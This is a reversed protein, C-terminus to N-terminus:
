CVWHRPIFMKQPSFEERSPVRNVISDNYFHVATSPVKHVHTRHYTNNEPGLKQESVCSCSYIEVPMELAAELCIILYQDICISRGYDMGRIKVSLLGSPNRTYGGCGQPDKHGEVDLWSKNRRLFLITLFLCFCAMHSLPSRHTCRLRNGALNLSLREAYM